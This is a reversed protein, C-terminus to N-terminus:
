LCYGFNLLFPLLKFSSYKVGLFYEGERFTSLAQAIFFSECEHLSIKVKLMYPAKFVNFCPIGLSLVRYLNIKV